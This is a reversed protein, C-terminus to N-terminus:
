GAACQRADEALYELLYDHCERAIFENIKALLPEPLEGTLTHEVYDPELVDPATYRSHLTCDLNLEFDKGHTSM